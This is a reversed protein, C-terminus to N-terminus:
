EEQCDKVLHSGTKDAKNRRGLLCRCESTRVPAKPMQKLTDKRYFENVAVYGKAVLEAVQLWDEDKWWTVHERVEKFHKM